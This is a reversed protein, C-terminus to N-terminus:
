QMVKLMLYIYIFIVYYAAYSCYIEPNASLVLPTACLEPGNVYLMNICPFFSASSYKECTVLQNFSMCALMNIKSMRHYKM